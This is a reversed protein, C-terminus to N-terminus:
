SPRGKAQASAVEFTVALGRAAAEDLLRAIGPVLSRIRPEDTISVARELSGDEDPLLILRIGHQDPRIAALCAPLGSEPTLDAAARRLAAKSHTTPIVRVVDAFDHGIRGQLDALYESAADTALIEVMQRDTTLAVSTFVDEHRNALSTAMAAVQKVRPPAERQLARRGVEEHHAPQPGPDPAATCGTLLGITIAVTAIRKM